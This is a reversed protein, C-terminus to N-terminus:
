NKLKEVILDCLAAVLEALLDIEYIGFIGNFFNEEEKTLVGCYQGTDKHTYLFDFITDNYLGKYKFVNFVYRGVSEYRQKPHLRKVVGEVDSFTNTKLVNIVEEAEVSRKITKNYKGECKEIRRVIPFIVTELANGGNGTYKDSLFYKAVSEYNAAVRKEIDSNRRLGELLGLMRWTKIHSEGSTENIKQINNM